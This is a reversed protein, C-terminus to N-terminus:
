AVEPATATETPAPRSARWEALAQRMFVVFEPWEEIESRTGYRRYWLGYDHSMVWARRVGREENVTFSTDEDHIVGWGEIFGPRETTKYEIKM